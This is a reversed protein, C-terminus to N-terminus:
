PLLVVRDEAGQLVTRYAEAAEEIPFQMAEPVPYPKLAGNAFGDALADLSCASAAGDLSLTDVGVFTHRGRYFQLIDFSVDRSLTAIFIARAGLAMAANADAFYPSGVTNFVIDVGHGNTLERVQAAVKQDAPNIMAVPAAAHGIYGRDGRAVGIVRAGLMTAIQCAAQGVKGNAGLVLVNDGPKPMGSRSFGEYATVFPVGISGAEEFSVGAPMERVYTRDCSLYRAHSGDRTIGLDGGSGWVSKGILDDPGDIVVGSWDRGPTRPWVAHPMMGLAAKVDSPNVAAARVEVVVGGAHAAPASSPEIKLDLWELSESRELVRIRSM